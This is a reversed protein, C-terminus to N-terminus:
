HSAQTRAPSMKNHEQILCKVRVTGREVWTYLHTGTFNISPTVRCHPRIEDLPLLFIEMWKISCFDSTLSAKRCPSLKVYIPPPTPITFSKQALVDNNPSAKFALTLRFILKRQVRLLITNWHRWTCNWLRQWRVRWYVLLFYNDLM